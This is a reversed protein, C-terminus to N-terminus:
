FLFYSFDWNQYFNESFRSKKKRFKSFDQSREINPFDWNPCFFIPFRQNPRYKRFDRNPGFNGFIRIKSFIISFRAKPWFKKLFRLKTLFKLFIEDFNKSYDRNKHFTKSFASQTVFIRFNQNQDINEVIEINNSIQAFKSNPQFKRFIENRIMKVFFWLRVWFQRFIRIKFLM